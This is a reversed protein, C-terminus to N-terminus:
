CIRGVHGGKRATAVLKVAFSSGRTNSDERVRALALVISMSSSASFGFRRSGNDRQRHGRGTYGLDVLAM